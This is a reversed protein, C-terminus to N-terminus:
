RTQGKSHTEDTRAAETSPPRMRGALADELTAIRRASLWFFVGVLGVTWVLGIITGHGAYHADLWGHFFFVNWLASGAHATEINAIASGRTWPLLRLIHDADPLCAWVGGVM